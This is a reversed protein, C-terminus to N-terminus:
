KSEPPKKSQGSAGILTVIGFPKGSAAILGVGVVFIIITIAINNEGSISGNLAWFLSTFILLIGLIYLAKKM